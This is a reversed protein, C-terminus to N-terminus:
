LSRTEIIPNNNIANMLQCNNHRMIPILTRIRKFIGDSIIGETDSPVTIGPTNNDNDDPLEQVSAM